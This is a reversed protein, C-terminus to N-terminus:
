QPVPEVIFIEGDYDVVFLNDDTDIGFSSINDITGVDPTLLTAESRFNNLGLTSGDNIQNPGVSWVKGTEFDGFVYRGQLEDVPGHYVMGGIVSSGPDAPDNHLYEAVPPILTATTTGAFDQTGEKVSWGFNIPDAALSETDLEIRSIEEATNEGKDAIYLTNTDFDITNRVPNRLGVAWVEPAGGSASFPNGAPIAYDREDDSTFADSFANIRLIKGLLSDVDQARGNPDGVGGGDGTAILMLGDSDFGIWGGNNNTDPQPIKIILNKTAPDGQTISNSMLGYRRVETDGSTNTLYVFFDGTTLFAPSYSFGLLGGEGATSVDATLDLFPVTEIAGTSSNLVRILGGREVVLLNDTTPLGIVYVPEDFGAGIRRTQAPEDLDNVTITVTVTGIANSPDRATLAVKYVNNQDSDKPFEFDPATGFSLEGTTTDFSFVGSDLSTAKALTLPDGDADTATFTYIVGSTNEDITVSNGSTVVPTANSGSSGNDSGGSSCAALGAAFILAMASPLVSGSIGSMAKRRKGSQDNAKSFM